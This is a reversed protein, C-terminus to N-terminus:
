DRPMGSQFAAELEEDTLPEFSAFVQWENVPMFSPGSWWVSLRAEDRGVEDVRYIAKKRRGRGDLNWVFQGVRPVFAAVVGRAGNKVATPGRRVVSRMEMELPIEVLKLGAPTARYVATEDDATGVGEILGRKLLSSLTLDIRRGEEPAVCKGDAVRSLVERQRTSLRSVKEPHAPQESKAVLKGAPHTAWRPQKLVHLNRSSRAELM